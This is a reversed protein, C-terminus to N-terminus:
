CRRQWRSCSKLRHNIGAITLTLDIGNDSTSLNYRNKLEQCENPLPAVSAPAQIVKQSNEQMYKRRFTSTALSEVGSRGRSVSDKGAVHGEPAEQSPSLRARQFIHNAATEKMKQNIEIEDVDHGGLKANVHGRKLYRHREFSTGREASAQETNRNRSRIHLGALHQQTNQVGILDIRPVAHARIVVPMPALPAEDGNECDSVDMQLDLNRLDKVDQFHSPGKKTDSCGRYEESAKVEPSQTVEVYLKSSSENSGIQKANTTMSPHHKETTVAADNTQKRMPKHAPSLCVDATCELTGSDLNRDLYQEDSSTCKSDSKTGQWRWPICRLSDKAGELKLKVSPDGCSRLAAHEAASLDTFKRFHSHTYLPQKGTRTATSKVTNASYLHQYPSSCSHTDKVQMNQLPMYTLAGDQLAAHPFNPVHGLFEMSASQKDSKQRAAEPSAYEPGKAIREMELKFMRNPTESSTSQQTGQIQNYLCIQRSENKEAETVRM